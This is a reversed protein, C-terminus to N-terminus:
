RESGISVSRDLCRLIQFNTKSARLPFHCTFMIIFMRFTFKVNHVAIRLGKRCEDYMASPCTANEVCINIFFKLFKEQSRSDHSYKGMDVLDILHRHLCSTKRELLGVIPLQYIAGGWGGGGGWSAGGLLLIDNNKRHM